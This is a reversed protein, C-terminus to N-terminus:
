ADHAEKKPITFCFCNGTKSSEAWIKGKHAEIIAKSTFLGLGSGPTKFMAQRGRSYSKFIKTLEETPIGVGEDEISVKVERENQTLSVKIIGGPSYKLANSILNSLVQEIKDQDAYLRYEEPGALLQFSHKATSPKYLAILKQVSAKLEFNGPYITLKDAQIRFFSLLNDLLRNLRDVESNVVQLSNIREPVEMHKGLRLLTLIHGKIAALPTRLDHSFGAMLESRLQELKKEETIDRFVIIGGWLEDDKILDSFTSYVYKKKGSKTIISGETKIENKKKGKYKLISLLPCHTYCREYGKADKDEFIEGCFKGLVETEKWGTIKQAANNIFIIKREKDVTIVGESLNRAINEIKEKELIINSVLTANEIALTARSAILKLAKIGTDSFTREAKISGVNLVGIIRNGAQMPLCLLSKIETQGKPSPIFHSNKQNSNYLYPKGHKIVWGAVGEGYKIRTLGFAKGDPRWQAQTVLEGADEDLLMISAREVRFLRGVLALTKDLIVQLNQTSAAVELEYNIIEYLTELEQELAALKLDVPSISISKWRKERL